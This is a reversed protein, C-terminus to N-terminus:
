RFVFSFWSMSRGGPVSTEILSVIVQHTVLHSAAGIRRSSRAIKNLKSTGPSPHCGTVPFGLEDVLKELFSTSAAAM